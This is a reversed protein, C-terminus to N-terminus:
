HCHEGGVDMVVTKKWGFLFYGVAAGLSVSLCLWTNYTMFILMLCYSLWVQIFQLLTQLLHGRSLLSTQLIRVQSTPRQSPSPSAPRVEPHHLSASSASASIGPAEDSIDATHGRGPSMTAYSSRRLEDNMLYERLFKFGEYLVGLLFCGVMSGILGGLSSIRWFDFLIVENYGGHFYMMMMEGTHGRHHQGHPEGHHHHHSDGVGDGAQPLTHHHDPAETTHLPGHLEHDGM